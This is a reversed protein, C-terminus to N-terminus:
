AQWGMDLPKLGSYSNLIQYITKFQTFTIAHNMVTSVVPIGPLGPAYLKSNLNIYVWDVGDFIGKQGWSSFGNEHLWSYVESNWGLLLSADKVLLCASGASISKEEM